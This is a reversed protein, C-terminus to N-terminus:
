QVSTGKNCHEQLNCSNVYRLMPAADKRQTADKKGKGNSSLFELNGGGKKHGM